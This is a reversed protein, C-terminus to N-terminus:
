IRYIIGDSGRADPRRLKLSHMRHRFSRKSSFKHLFIMKKWIKKKQNEFM